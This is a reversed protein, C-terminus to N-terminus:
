IFNRLNAAIPSGAAPPNRKFLGKAWHRTFHNISCEVKCERMHQIIYHCNKAGSDTVAGLALVNPVM